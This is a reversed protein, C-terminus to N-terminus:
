RKVVNIKLAAMWSSAFLEVLQVEAWKQIFIQKPLIKLIHSSSRQPLRIVESNHRPQVRVPFPFLGGGAQCFAMKNFLWNNNKLDATMHGTNSYLNARAGANPTVCLHAVMEM